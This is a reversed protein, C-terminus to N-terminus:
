ATLELVRATLPRRSRSLSAKDSLTTDAWGLDDALILDINEPRVAIAADTISLMVILTLIRNKLSYEM